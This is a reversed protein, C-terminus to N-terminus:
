KHLERTQHNGPDWGGFLHNQEQTALVYSTTKKRHWYWRDSPTM